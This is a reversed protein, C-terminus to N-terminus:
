SWENNGNEKKYNQNEDSYLKETEMKGLNAQDFVSNLHRQYIKYGLFWKVWTIPSCKLQLWWIFSQKKSRFGKM